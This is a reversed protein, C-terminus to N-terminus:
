NNNFINRQGKDSTNTKKKIFNFISQAQKVANQSDQLDPIDYESPYRFKTSFPNLLNAQDVIKEFTTDFKMCLEVLQLLDHTKVIRHNKFVLYAKLSKKATQQCHYAVASFLELKLLGKAARLDEHAIQLWQEHNQM